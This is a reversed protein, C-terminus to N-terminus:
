VTLNFDKDIKIWKNNNKLSINVAEIVSTSFIAEEFTARLGRIENLKSEKNVISYVDKIFQNISAHGYGKFAEKKGNIDYYFKSFYPNIHEIGNKEEILKLGRNKQDSEIRGKTGIVKIKQDSMASTKKPDIWNTLICSIFTKKTKEDYWEIIAQISDYTDIKKKILYNKQGIALVRKPHAKTFFYILDAYHVGLYQFINTNKVWKKFYDTPITNKQSFEVLWYLPEGIKRKKIIELIELNAEDFRKHFEVACYVKKQKQLKILKRVEDVTPTLPKVSLVHINNKILEKSIKFHLHDPASVIACTNKTQKKIIKKYAESDNKEKPFYEVSYNTGMKKNLSKIKKDIMKKNQTKTGVITIDDILDIKKAEFLSPIITGFGQTGRGIAYMGSGIVIVNISQKKGSEM